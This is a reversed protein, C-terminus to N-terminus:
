CAPGCVGGHNDLYSVAYFSSLTLSNQGKSNDDQILCYVSLLVAVTVWNEKEKLLLSLILWCDEKLKRESTPLGQLAWKKWGPM